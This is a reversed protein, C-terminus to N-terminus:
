GRIGVVKQGRQAAIKAQEEIGVGSDMKNQVNDRLVPIFEAYCQEVTEVTDALMKAVEFVGVGRTLMDCAFTDRFCHASGEVGARNCLEIARRSLVARNAFSVGTEPNLLVYDQNSQTHEKRLAELDERLETSLPIIAVKSRKQTLIEIEGNSGRDFQVHKWQLRVADSVRLGSWRLLLFVHTDDITQRRSNKYVTAKRIAAMEEGTFARAGNKPNEGPKSERAMSIPKEFLMKQAVAFAFMGHLVAIDLAVGAGGRSQKKATVAKHRAIKYKAIVAPTIDVLPTNKDELFNTFDRITVKYRDRTSTSMIGEKRTAGREKNDVKRQMDIEYADCLDQWTLKATAKRSQGTYGVRIAFFKFTAPPLSDALEAWLPSTAGELAAREIKATRRKAASEEDAGLSLRFPKGDLSGFTQYTVAGTFKESGELNQSNRRRVQVERYGIKIVM